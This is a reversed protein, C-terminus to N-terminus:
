STVEAAEFRESPLTLRWGDTTRAASAGPIQQLLAAVMPPPPAGDVQDVIWDCFPGRRELQPSRGGRLGAEWTWRVLAHALSWDASAARVRPWQRPVSHSPLDVLDALWEAGEVERRAPAGDAGLLGAAVVLGWGLRARESELAASHRAAEAGDLTALRRLEAELAQARKSIGGLLEALFRGDGEEPAGQYDSM